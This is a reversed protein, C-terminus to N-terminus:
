NFMGFTLTAGGDSDCSHLFAVYGGGEVVEGLVCVCCAVLHFYVDTTLM